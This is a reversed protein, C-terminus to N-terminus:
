SRGSALAHRRLLLWCVFSAASSGFLVASLPLAQTSGLAFMTVTGAVGGLIQLFGQLGAAAGAIRPSISIAGANCNPLTGSQGICSLAFAFAFLLASDAGQLAMALVWIGSLLTITQGIDIVRELGLRVTLRSFVVLGGVWGGTWILLYVGYQHTPVGFREFYLIPGAVNMAFSGWSLLFTSLGFALFGRNLILSGFDQAMSVLPHVVTDRRAPRINPFIALTALWTVVGLMACAVFIWRWGCWLDLYGGFLPSLNPIVSNALMLLAMARASSQRDFLDRVIARSVVLGAAGGLAQLLRAALLWEISPVLAAGLCSLTWLAAGFLAVTRRGHRDSLMGGFLQSIANGVLFATVTLQVMGQSTNLGEAIHPMAPLMISSSMLSLSALAVNVPWFWLSVRPKVSDNM